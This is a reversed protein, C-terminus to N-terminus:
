RRTRPRACDGCCQHTAVCRGDVTGEFSRDCHPCLWVATKNSRPLVQEPTLPLNRTPHWIAAVDPREVVLNRTATAAKGACAPCGTKARTRQKMETTWRHGCGPASCHWGVTRHGGAYVEWATFPNTDAVEGALFPSVTALCNRNNVQKGACFPCGRGRGTRQGPAAEFSDGLPCRWWVPKSADPRVHRPTLEGNGEPDWQAAIQPHTVALSDEGLDRYAVDALLTKALAAGHVRGAAVYNAAAAAAAPPLWGRECMRDLVASAAEVPDDTGVVAVDDGHLLDLPRERVRVLGHWAARIAASKWVDPGRRRRHWYAGDYEVAIVGASTTVAIDVKGSRADLGPLRHHHRVTGAGLVPSLVASLEAWLRVEAASRHSLCCRPCSTRQSTRLGVTTPWEHGRTCRWWVRANAGPTVDAPTLLGNGTPHWQAAIAPHTTVLSACRPCGSRRRVPLSLRYPPHTAVAPCRWTFVRQSGYSVTDPTDPANAELDFSRVLGQDHRDRMSRGPKPIDRPQRSCIRSRCGGGPGRKLYTHAKGAVTRETRRGCRRCRWTARLNSRWSVTEPTADGNHDRDWDLAFEPMRDAISQGPQAPRAMGERVHTRRQSGNM